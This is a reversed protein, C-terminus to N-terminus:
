TGSSDTCADSLEAFLGLLEESGPPHYNLRLADRYTRGNVIKPFYIDLYYTPADVALDRISPERYKLDTFGYKEAIERAKDMYSSDVSIEELSIENFDDDFYYCSFLVESERVKISYDYASTRTMDSYRISIEIIDEPERIVTEEIDEKESIETEEVHTKSNSDCNNLSFVTLLSLIIATFLKM